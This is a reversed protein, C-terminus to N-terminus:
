NGTSERLRLILNVTSGNRINYDTLTHGDQLQVGAFIIRQQDPPSGEVTRVKAKVTEITDLGEVELPFTKGTLTKVFILM